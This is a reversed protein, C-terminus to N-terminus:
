QSQGLVLRGTAVEVVQREQLKGSMKAAYERPIVDSALVSSHAIGTNRTM